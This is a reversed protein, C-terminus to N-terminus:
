LLKFLLQKTRDPAEGILRKAEAETVHNLEGTGPRKLYNTMGQALQQIFFERWLYYCAHYQNGNEPIKATNVLPLDLLPRILGSNTIDDYFTVNM